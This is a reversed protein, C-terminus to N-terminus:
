EFHPLVDEILENLGNIYADKSKEAGFPQISTITAGAEKNIGIFEIMEQTNRPALTEGLKRQTGSERQVFITPLVVEFDFGEKEQRELFGPQERVYALCDPLQEPRIQWPVWGTGLRAVRRLAIKSDGGIWVPISKNVPKPEFKIDDFQFFEGNFKPDEERWLVKMAEIHEDTLRGRQKYPVDFLEFEKEQHGVGAGLVVRGGSLDDMTSLQKALAIPNRYAPVMVSTYLRSNETVGLLWSMAAVCDMWYSGMTAARELGMVIHDSVSIYDFNDMLKAVERKDDHTASARWNNKDVMYMNNFPFQISFRM